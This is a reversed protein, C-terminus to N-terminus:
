GSLVALGVKHIGKGWIKMGECSNWPVDGSLIAEETVPVYGSSPGCHSVIDNYNSLVGLLSRKEAENKKRLLARQRSYASYFIYFYYM